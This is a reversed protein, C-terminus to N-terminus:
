SLEHRMIQGNEKRIIDIQAMSKVTGFITICCTYMCAHICAFCVAVGVGM